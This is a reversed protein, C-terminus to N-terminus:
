IRRIRFSAAAPGRWELVAADVRQGYAPAVHGEEVRFSGAPSAEIGIRAGSSLVAEARGSAVTVAIGPAFRFSRPLLDPSAGTVRDELTWEARLENYQFVRQWSLGEGLRAEGRITTEGEAREWHLTADAPIAEWRFTGAPRPGIGPPFSPGSHAAFGRDADRDPGRYLVVGPDVLVPERGLSLVPCFWDAHSHSCPGPIGWGFPGGRLALFWAGTRAVLHGGRTFHRV